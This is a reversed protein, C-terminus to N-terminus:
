KDNSNKDGIFSNYDLDKKCTKCRIRWSQDYYAPTKIQAIVYTGKSQVIGCYECPKTCAPIKTIEIGDSDTALVLEDEIWDGGLNYHGVTPHFQAAARNATYKYSVNMKDLLAILLKLQM